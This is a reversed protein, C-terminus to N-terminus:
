LPERGCTLESVLDAPLRERYAADARTGTADLVTSFFCRAAVALIVDVIDADSLGRARLSAREADDIDPADRAVRAAFAAIVADRDAILSEATPATVPSTSTRGSSTASDAATVDPRNGDAAALVARLGDRDAYRELLVEGHALSCYTSRLARAAAVTAIEYTRHDMGGSIAAALARWAAYAEPRGGFAREYNPIDTM